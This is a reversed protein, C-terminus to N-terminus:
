TDGEEDIIVVSGYPTFHVHFVPKFCMECDVPEWNSMSCWGIMKHGCSCKILAFHDGSSTFNVVGGGEM